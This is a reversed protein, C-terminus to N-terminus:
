DFVMIIDSDNVNCFKILSLIGLQLESGNKLFFSSSPLKSIKTFLKISFDPNLGESNYGLTIM